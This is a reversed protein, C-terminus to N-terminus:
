SEQNSGAKQGGVCNYAQKARPVEQKLAVSAQTRCLLSGASYGDLGQLVHGAKSLRPSEQEQHSEGRVTPPSGSGARARGGTIGTDEWMKNTWVSVM